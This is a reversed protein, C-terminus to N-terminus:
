SKKVKVTSGVTVSVVPVMVMPVVDVLVSDDAGQENVVVHEQQPTGFKGKPTLVVSEALVRGAGFIVQATPTGGRTDALGVM